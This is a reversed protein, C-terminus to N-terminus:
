RGRREGAEDKNDVVGLHEVMFGSYAVVNMQVVMDTVLTTMIAVMPLYPFPSMDRTYHWCTVTVYTHM